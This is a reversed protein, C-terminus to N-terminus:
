ASPCCEQLLFSAQERISHTLVGHFSCLNSVMSNPWVVQAWFNGAVTVLIGTKGNVQLLRCVYINGAWSSLNYHDM